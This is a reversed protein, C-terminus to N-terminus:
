ILLEIPGLVVNIQWEMLKLAQVTAWNSETWFIENTDSIPRFIRFDYTQCRGPWPKSCRPCARFKKEPQNKSSWRTRSEPRSGAGDRRVFRRRVRCRRPSLDAPLWVRRHSPRSTTSAATTEFVGKLRRFGVAAAAEPPRASSRWRWGELSAARSRSASWSRTAWCSRDANWWFQYSNAPSTSNESSQLRLGNEGPEVGARLSDKQQSIKPSIKCRAFNREFKM